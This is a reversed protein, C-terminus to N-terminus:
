RGLLEQPMSGLLAIYTTGHVDGTNPVNADGLGGGYAYAGSLSGNYMYGCVDAGEYIIVNTNYKKGNRAIALPDNLGNDVYECGTTGLSLDIAQPEPTVAKEEPSLANWADHAESAWAATSKKNMVRGLQGGGYAEYVRATNNLNM